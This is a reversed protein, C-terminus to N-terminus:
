FTGGDSILGGPDYVVYEISMKVIRLYELNSNGSVKWWQASEVEGGMINQLFFESFIM